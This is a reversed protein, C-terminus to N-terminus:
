AGTPKSSNGKGGEILSLLDQPSQAVALLPALDSANRELTANSNPNLELVLEDAGSATANQRAGTANAAGGILSDASALDVITEVGSSSVVQIRFKATSNDSAEPGLTSNKATALAPTTSDMYKRYLWASAHAGLVIRTPTLKRTLKPWKIAFRKSRALGARSLQRLSSLQEPKAELNSQASTQRALLVCTLALACLLVALRSLYLKAGKINNDSNACCLAFRKMSPLCSRSALTSIKTKM